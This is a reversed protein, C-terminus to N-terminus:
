GLSTPSQHDNKPFLQPVRPLWTTPSIASITATVSLEQNQRRIQGEQCRSGGPVSGPVQWSSLRKRQPRKGRGTSIMKSAGRGAEWTSNCSSIGHNGGPPPAAPNASRPNPTFHDYTFGGVVIMITTLSELGQAIVIRHRNQAGM